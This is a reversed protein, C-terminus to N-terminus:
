QVEEEELDDDKKASENEKKRDDSKKMEQFIKEGLQDIEEKTFFRSNIVEICDKM